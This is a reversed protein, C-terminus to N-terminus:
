LCEGILRRWEPEQGGSGAMMAVGLQDSRDALEVSWRDEGCCACQGTWLWASAVGKTSLHFGVDDGHFFEMCGTAPEERLRPTWHVARVLAPSYHALRLQFGSRGAAELLRVPFEPPLLRVHTFGAEWRARLWPIRSALRDRQRKAWAHNPSYWPRGEEPTSQHALVFQEFFDRNVGAPLLVREFITGSVNRAELGHLVGALSAERVAWLTAYEALNPTYTNHLDSPTVPNLWNNLKPVPGLKGLVAIPNRTLHLVEGFLSLREFWARPTTSLGVRVVGGPDIRLCHPQIREEDRSEHDKLPRWTDARQREIDEDLRFFPDSSM